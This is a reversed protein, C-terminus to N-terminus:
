NLKWVFWQDVTSSKIQDIHMDGMLANFSGDSHHYGVDRCDGNGTDAISLPGHDTENWCCLRNMDSKWGSNSTVIAPRKITDTVYIKSSFTKIRALKVPNESNEGWGRAKAKDACGYPALSPSNTWESITNMVYSAKTLNKMGSGEAYAFPEFFDSESKVSPCQFVKENKIGNNYLYNIFSVEDTGTFIAPIAYGNNVDSYLFLGLGIQKLNNKCVGCYAVERAKGLAPLLMAFLIVMIGVVVMLEILTFNRKKFFHVIRLSKM